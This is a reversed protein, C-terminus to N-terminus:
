IKEDQQGEDVCTKAGFLHKLKYYINKKTNVVVALRKPASFPTV